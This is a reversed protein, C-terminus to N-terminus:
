QTVSKTFENKDFRGLLACADAPGGGDAFRVMDGLNIAIAEAVHSEESGIGPYISPKSIFIIILLSFTEALKMRRLANGYHELDPCGFNCEINEDLSRGKQEGIVM